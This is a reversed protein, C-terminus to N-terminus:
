RSRSPPLSPRSSPAAVADGLRALPRHPRLARRLRQARRHLGGGPLRRDRVVCHSRALDESPCTDAQSGSEKLVTRRSAGAAQMSAIFGSLGDSANIRIRNLDYPEDPSALGPEVSSATTYGAKKVEKAVADDYQGAPYCFHNIKVGFQRELGRKSKEVESALQEGDVTTLDPHTISHSALEWGAALLAKVRDPALPADDPLGKPAYAQLNIVGPWGLKQLEPLAVTYHSKFGDDFSIVVPKKPLVGHHYWADAVQEMTVGTYGNDALWKMQDRFDDEDVHLEPLPADATAAEVDHYMLMPVPDRTKKWDTPPCRAAPHPRRRRRPPRPRPRRLTTEAAPEPAGAQPSGDAPAQARQAGAIVIGLAIATVLVALGAVLRRRRYDAGSPRPRPDPM